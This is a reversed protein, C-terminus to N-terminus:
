KTSSTRNHKDKIFVIKPHKIVEGNGTIGNDLYAMLTLNHLDSNLPHNWLTSDMDFDLLKASQGYTSYHDSISLSVTTDEPLRELYKIMDKVTPNNM